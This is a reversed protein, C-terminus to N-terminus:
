RLEIINEGQQLASLIEPFIKEFTNLLSASRCNGLRVWILKLTPIKSISLNFFDEDKSVMIWNESVCKQWIIEDPVADLGVKMVHVSEHGKTIFFNALAPPLQHDILFKM